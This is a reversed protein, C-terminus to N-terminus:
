LPQACGQLRGKMPPQMCGRYLSVESPNHLNEHLRGNLFTVCLRWAIGRESPNPSVGRLEHNLPTQVYGPTTHFIAACLGM